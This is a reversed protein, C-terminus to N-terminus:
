LKVIITDSVIISQHTKSLENFYEQSDKAFKYKVDYYEKKFYQKKPEYKLVLQFQSVKKDCIGLLYDESKLNFLYREKSGITVFDSSTNFVKEEEIEQDMFILEDECIVEYPLFKLDYFASSIVVENRKREKLGRHKLITVPRNTNNKIAFNFDFYEAKKTSSVLEISLDKDVKQDAVNKSSTCGILFILGLIWKYSM